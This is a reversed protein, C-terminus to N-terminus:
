LMRFPRVRRINIRETVHPNRQITITGNVHVQTIHFPGVFRDGLKKPDPVAVLVQQGIQYNYDIRKANERAANRDVLRQKRYQMTQLDAIFPVNFIMDRGFAIAAPSSQLTTHVATRLAYVTNALMTDVLNEAEHLNQPPNQMLIPRLQNAMTQHMRECIANAQPNKVTTPKDSIGQQQLLTQFEHGTFEGGNDHICQLPRPYKALWNNEYQMAVHRSTKNAIRVAEVLHTDTDIITLANFEYEQGQIKIRWPGILDVATTYWPVMSITKPPLHGYSRSPQKHIQCYPCNEVVAKIKARFHRNYMTTCITDLLKTQGPHNLVEHYWVVISGALATPIYVKGKYHMLNVNPLVERNSFLDPENQVLEPLEQDNLQAQRINRYDLPFALEEINPHNILCTALDLDDVMLDQFFADEVDELKSRPGSKEVLIQPDMELRTLMDAFTNEEGPIFHFIPGYEEILLRWRLVRQTNINPFTLNKHDTYVHIVAGLLMTRYTRLTEVISLLEKEGIPYNRQAPNLKKSFYAVPIKKGNDDLQYITAGLQFDSSDCYIYFPKNHNPYALLVDKALLAKVEDFAKQQEPGWEFTRKGSLNTLPALIHSRRKWMDKYFTIAGIFSRLQKQNTPEKIALIANIKKPWPKLGAPTLWHGLWDTEQVAWECKLPNMTFGNDQLRHLCANIQELHEEWTDSFIGIDDMYVELNLGRLCHEMIEQAIDPSELIGMPLRLYKYLGFPTSITCLISSEEDLVFTYYQMSIDLKTFYKYGQRRHLIDQIRPLEYQRRILNANLRRFDSVWRVRNDKKPIIFTGASWESRDAPALVEQEVLRDLENKFLQRHVHPVAYPRSQYPKADPKLHLHVKKHPYHKLKGDFLRPFQSLMTALEEQQSLTLHTQKAAVEQPTVEDYKAPLITTFNEFIDDFLDDEWLLSINEVKNWYRTSKMDIDIGMWKIKLEKFDLEMEQPRIFDRGLILDYRSPSETVFCKIEDIKFSKSFEALMSNSLKVAENMISIGGYGLVETPKIRTPVCNKPLARRHISSCSAGTDILVRLLRNSEVGNITTPILITVPGVDDSAHIPTEAQQEEDSTFEVPPSYDLGM